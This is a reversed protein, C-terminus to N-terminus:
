LYKKEEGKRDERNEDTTNVAIDEVCLIFGSVYSASLIPQIFPNLSHVHTLVWLIKAELLGQQVFSNKKKQM